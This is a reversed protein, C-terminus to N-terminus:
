FHRLMDKMNKQISPMQVFFQKALFESQFAWKMGSVGTWDRGMELTTRTHTICADIDQQYNTLAISLFSTLCFNLINQQYM